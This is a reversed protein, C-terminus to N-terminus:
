ILSPVPKVEQHNTGICYKESLRIPFAKIKRCYNKYATSCRSFNLIHIAEEWNMFKSSKIHYSGKSSELLSFPIKPFRLNLALLEQEVFKRSVNDYDLSLKYKM